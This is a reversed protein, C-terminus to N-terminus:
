AEPEDQEPHGREGGTPEAVAPAHHPHHHDEEDSNAGAGDHGSERATRLHEEHPQGHDPEERGDVMRHADRPDDGRRALPAHGEAEVADEPVDAVGHRRHEDPAIISKTDHRAAKMRGPM